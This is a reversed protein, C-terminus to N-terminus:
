FSGEQLHKTSLIMRLCQVCNKVIYLLLVVMSNSPDKAAVRAYLSNCQGAM